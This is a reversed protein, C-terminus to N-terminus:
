IFFPLACLMQLKMLHLLIKRRGNKWRFRVVAFIMVSIVTAVIEAISTATISFAALAFAQLCFAIGTATRPAVLKIATDGDGAADRIDMLLERGLIFAFVGAIPALKPSSMGLVSLLILPFTACVAVFVGKLKPAYEVVVGYNLAVALGGIYFYRLDPIIFFHIFGLSGVFAVLYVTAAAEKTVVGSPLPRSPHNVQDREFDQIDNLIFICISFLALPASVVLSWQLDRSRIWEPILVILFAVTTSPVRCVQVIGKLWAAGM